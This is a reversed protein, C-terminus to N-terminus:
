KVDFSTEQEDVPIEKMFYDEIVIFYSKKQLNNILFLIDSKKGQLQAEVTGDLRNKVWGTINLRIAERYLTYRFGVKQVRGKFIVYYRKM